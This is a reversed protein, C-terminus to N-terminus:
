GADRYEDEYDEDYTDESDIEGLPELVEGENDGYSCFKCRGRSKIAEIKTMESGCDPCGFLKIKTPLKMEKGKSRKGM